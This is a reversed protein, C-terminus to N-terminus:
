ARGKGTIVADIIPDRGLAGAQRALAYLKRLAHYRDSIANFEAEVALTAFAVDDLTAEEVAMESGSVSIVAPLAELAYHRKRLSELKPIVAM